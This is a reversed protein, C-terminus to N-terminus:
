VISRKKLVFCVGWTDTSPVQGSQFEEAQVLEFGTQRALLDIEPISFHRMPHTEYISEVRGTTLIQVLVEYNVDVINRNVDMRSEAIRTIQIDKGSMRKIRTEPRLTLVAPTYWVDFIFIGNTTLHQATLEFTKILASNDTLYSVVHFLSIATHFSQDLAFDTIDAQFSTFGGLNKRRAEEVMEASRELGVVEYGRQCLYHAHAGSGSGLELITSTEPNYQSILKHIYESEAQYNKDQYLLDYYKSYANFNTTLALSM